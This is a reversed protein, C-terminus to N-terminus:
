LKNVKVKPHTSDTFQVMKYFYELLREARKDFFDKQPVTNGVANKEQYTSYLYEMEDILWHPNCNTKYFSIGEGMPPNQKKANSRRDLIMMNAISNIENLRTKDDYKYFEKERGAKTSEGEIHDLDQKLVSASFSSPRTTMYILEDETAPVATKNYTYKLMLHFFLLKIKQKEHVNKRYTWTSAWEEFEKQLEAQKVPTIAVCATATTGTALTNKNRNIILADSYDKPTTYDESLVSTKWVVCVEEWLTNYKRICTTDDFIEDLYADLSVGSKAKEYNYLIDCGVGAAIAKYELQLLMALACKVISANTENEVNFAINKLEGNSIKMIIRSVKEFVEFDTCIDTDKYAGKETAEQLYANIVDTLADTKKIDKKGTIFVTSCYAVWIRFDKELSSLSNSWMKDLKVLTSNIQRKSEGSTKVYYRYFYDKMLELDSVGESRDNLTEFLKYADDAKTTIIECVNLKNILENLFEIYSQIIEESKTKKAYKNQFDEVENLIDIARNVYPWEEEDDYSINSWDPNQTPSYAICLKSLAERLSETYEGYSYSLCFSEKELFKENALVCAQYYSVLDSLNKKEPLGVAKRYQKLIKDIDKIDWAAAGHGDIIQYIKEQMKKIKAANKKGVFSEYCSIMMELEQKVNSPNFQILEEIQCRLLCFKLYNMLFITTLRQQGDIVEYECYNQEDKIEVLVVAGLFYQKAKEKDGKDRIALQRNEIYDSFLDVIREQKWRYPRQYFTINLNLQKADKSGNKIVDGISEIRAKELNM